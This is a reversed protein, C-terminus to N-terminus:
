RAGDDQPWNQAFETRIEEWAALWVEYSVFVMFIFHYKISQVCNDHWVLQM